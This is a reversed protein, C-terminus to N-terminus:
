DQYTVPNGFSRCEACNMCRGFINGAGTPNTNGGFCIIDYNSVGGNNQAINELLQPSSYYTFGRISIGDRANSTIRNGALAPSSNNIVIGDTKNQTVITSGIIGNSDDVLIGEQESNRIENDSVVFGFCNELWLGVGSSDIIENGTIRVPSNIVHIGGGKFTFGELSTESINYIKVSGQIITQGRGAGRLGFSKSKILINEAYVGAAVRIFDGSGAANVAKQISSYMGPVDITKTPGVPVVPYSHSAVHSDSDCGIGFIICLLLVLFFHKMM